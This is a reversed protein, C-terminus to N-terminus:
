QDDTSGENSPPNRTGTHRNGKEVGNGAVEARHKDTEQNLASVDKWDDLMATLLSLVQDLQWVWTKAIRADLQLPIKGKDFDERDQALEHVCAEVRAIKEDLTAM